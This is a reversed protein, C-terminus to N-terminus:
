AGLLLGEEVKLPWLEGLRLRMGLILTGPWVTAPCHARCLAHGPM